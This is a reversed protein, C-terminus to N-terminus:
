SNIPAGRHHLFGIMDFTGVLSNALEVVEQQLRLLQAEALRREQDSRYINTIHPVLYQMREVDSQIKEWIGRAVELTSDGVQGPNLASDVEALLWTEDDANTADKHMRM